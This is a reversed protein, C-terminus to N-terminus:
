EFGEFTATYNNYNWESRNTSSNTRGEASFSMVLGDEETLESLGLANEEITVPIIRSSNNCSITLNTVGNISPIIELTLPSNNELAISYTTGM